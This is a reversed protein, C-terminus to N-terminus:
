ANLRIPMILYMFGSGDGSEILGPRLSSILKLILDGEGASEIGDRLYDPNFGIDLDEGDFPVPLTETAEGIDPTQASVTLTGKTFSLTLPKTRQALLSIRRIVGGLEESSIRLEHEFKEPLLERYKPFQGDILRSALVIGGFDFVVQTEQLSILVGQDSGQSLRVAEQLARAPVNADFGEPIEEELETEKFSLRYSDTAVMRLVKGEVQFLVGTLVPRTQDTSAAKEVRKVTSELAAAPITVASNGGSAPLTPFDEARLTKLDFTASGATIEVDQTAGRGVISVTGGPLSRVVDAFLRAPLVVEGATQVQGELPLRVSLELDTARLEIGGSGAALQVGTLAQISTRSSAIRSAAQLGELLAERDVTIQPTGKTQSTSTMPTNITNITNM